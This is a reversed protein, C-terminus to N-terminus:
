EDEDSRLTIEGAEVLNRVATVVASLAVEAEKPKIRGRSEAEDRLTAAMRQSMNSLLFTAAQGDTSDPAPLTAALAVILDAQSVERLIKPVDRPNVRDPINAFTFIAKRVGEAFDRDDEELGTLLTDRVMASTSNLMAGVRAAPAAPFARSPRGDIERAISTGIRSVMDPAIGETLSVGYAVRRAREGPMKGLLEAAKTVSLKSLVVAAVEASEPELVTLLTASDTQAIREWPDIGDRAKQRLRSSAGPSLKGDLAKLAGGLGGAFSLGVQELTEVFEGVVASLTDRDVLRMQAITETLTTQMEEPLSSLKVDAGEAILLRVLIAAKQKGTLAPIKRGSPAHAHAPPHDAAAAAFSDFSFPALEQTM